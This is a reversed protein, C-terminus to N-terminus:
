AFPQELVDMRLKGVSSKYYKYQYIISNEFIAYGPDFEGSM